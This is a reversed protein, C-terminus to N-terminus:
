KNFGFHTEKWNKKLMTSEQLKSVLSNQAGIHEISLAICKGQLNRTWLPKNGVVACLNIKSHTPYLGM